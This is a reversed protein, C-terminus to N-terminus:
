QIYVSNLDLNMGIVTLNPAVTVCPIIQLDYRIIYKHPPDGSGILNPLNFTTLGDGAGYYTGIMDYLPNYTEIPVAAGNCALYGAPLYNITNILITGVSPIYTLPYPLLQITNVGQINSPNVVTNTTGQVDYRIIYKNPPDTSIILNPLAFTTSGNGNGYYIGIMDYLATFTDRSLIAGNCALYGDPLNSITNLLITGIAPVYPLPYPLMQITNINQVNVPQSVPVTNQEDYRIIYKYPGDGSVILNPLKFTTSGDGAGYYMGIMDFLVRYTTRSVLAGNCALYGDPLLNVSNLLIAGVAPVYPLPYPLMQITNIDPNNVPPTILVTGQVDYRIIYKYLGDGTLILHPLKFTTSGDGTGYYTGIMDFLIHYTSRSVLTGNCALYGDPLLNVSNLLITGVAPVYPLPYPLMQIANIGPTNVPPSVVITNTNSGTGSGTGTGSLDQQVYRIIYQSTTTSLNPLNFTTIGDGIGYYTGIMNYLISYTERSVESGNCDLYGDPLTPTTNQLITGPPPIYAIPYPLIQINFMTPTPNSNGNCVNSTIDSTHNYKIIYTVNLNSDNSMNPLNFTTSLDGDGYYTGIIKFLVSYATRSVAAGNCLLYGTPLIGTANALIAGPLQVTNTPYEGIEMPVVAPPCSTEQEPHFPLELPYMPTPPARPIASIIVRPIPMVQACVQACTGQTSYRALKSRFASM